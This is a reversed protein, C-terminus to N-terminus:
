SSSFMKKIDWIRAGENCQRITHAIFYSFFEHFYQLYTMSSTAMQLSVQNVHIGLSEQPNGIQTDQTIM